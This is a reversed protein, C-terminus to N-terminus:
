WNWTYQKAIQMACWMTGSNAHTHTGTTDLTWQSHQASTSSGDFDNQMRIVIGLKKQTTIVLVLLYTCAICNKKRKEWKPDNNNKKKRKPKNRRIQRIHVNVIVRCNHNNNNNNVVFSAHFKLLLLRFCLLPFCFSKRIHRLRTDTHRTCLDISRFPNRMHVLFQVQSSFRVMTTSMPALHNNADLTM